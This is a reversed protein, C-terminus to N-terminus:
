QPHTLQHLTERHIDPIKTPKGTIRDVLVQSWYGEAAPTELDKAFLALHATISSNGIRALKLAGEIPVGFALPSIFRCSSEAAYVSYPGKVLNIAAIETFVSIVIEEFFRYYQVNNIHGNMDYDSWRIPIDKFIVFDSRTSIPRKSQSM